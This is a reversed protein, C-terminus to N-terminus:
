KSTLLLVCHSVSKIVKNTKVIGLTLNFFVWAHGDALFLIRWEMTKNFATDNFICERHSFATTGDVPFNCVLSRLGCVVFSLNKITVGEGSSSFLSWAPFKRNWYHHYYSAHCLFVLYSASIDCLMLCIYHYYVSNWLRSADFVISYIIGYLINRIIINQIKWNLFQM